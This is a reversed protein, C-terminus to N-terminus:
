DHPRAARRAQMQTRDLDALAKEIRWKLASRADARHPECRFAQLAQLLMMLEGRGLHM